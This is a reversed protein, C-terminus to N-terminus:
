AIRRPRSSPRRADLPIVPALRAAPTPTAPATDAASLLLTMVQQRTRGPAREWPLIAAHLDVITHTRLHRTLHDVAATYTEATTPDTITFWRPQGHLAARIAGYISAPYMGSRVVRCGTHTCGHHPDYLGPGPHWGHRRLYDAAARLADAPSHPLHDTM